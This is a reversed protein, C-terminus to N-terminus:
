IALDYYNVQWNGVIILSDANAMTIGDSDVLTLWQDNNSRIRFIVVDRQNSISKFWHQNLKERDSPHVHSLVQEVTDFEKLLASGLLSSLDNEWSIKGTEPELRYLVDNGSLRGICAM